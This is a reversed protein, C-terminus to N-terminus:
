CYLICLGVGVVQDLQRRDGAVELLAVVDDVGM